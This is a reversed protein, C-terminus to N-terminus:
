VPPPLALMQGRFHMFVCFGAFLIYNKAVPLVRRALSDPGLNRNYWAQWKTETQQEAKTTTSDKNLFGARVAPGSRSTVATSSSGSSSVMQQQQAARSAEMATRRLAEVAAARRQTTRNLLEYLEERRDKTSPRFTIRLAVTCVQEPQQEGKIAIDNLETVIETKQFNMADFKTLPSLDYATSSGLVIGDKDKATMTLTAQGTEVSRFVAMGGKKETDDDHFTETLVIEEIPSSLQM